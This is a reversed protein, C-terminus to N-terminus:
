LDSRALRNQENLKMYFPVLDEKMTKIQAQSPIWSLWYGSRTKFAIAFTFTKDSKPQLLYALEPFKRVIYFSDLPEVGNTREYENQSFHNLREICEVLGPEEM